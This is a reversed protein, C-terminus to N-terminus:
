NKDFCLGGLCQVKDSVTQSETHVIKYVRKKATPWFVFFNM